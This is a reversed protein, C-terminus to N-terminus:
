VWLELCSTSHLTGNLCVQSRHDAEHRMTRNRSSGSVLSSTVVRLAYRQSGCLEITYLSSLSTIARLISILRLFSEVSGHKNHRCSLLAIKDRLTARCAIMTLSGDTEADEALAGRRLVVPQCMFAM